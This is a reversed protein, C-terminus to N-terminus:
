AMEKWCEEAAETAAAFCICPDEGGEIDEGCCAFIGAMVSRYSERMLGEKPKPNPPRM